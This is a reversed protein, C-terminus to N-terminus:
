EERGEAKLLAADRMKIIQQLQGQHIDCEIYDDACYGCEKMVEDLASWEKLAEYMEPATKHKPCFAILDQQGYGTQIVTCNDPEDCQSYNDSDAM